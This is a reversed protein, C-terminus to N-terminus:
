KLTGKSVAYVALVGIIWPLFQSLLSAVQGLAFGKAARVTEELAQIRYDCGSAHDDLIEVKPQCRAHESKVINFEDRIGQVADLKEWIKKLQGNHDDVKGKVDLAEKLSLQIKDLTDSMHRYMLRHERQEDEVTRIRKEMDDPPM